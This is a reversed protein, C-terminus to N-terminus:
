RRGSLEEEPLLDQLDYKWNEIRPPLFTAQRIHSAVQVALNMGQSHMEENLVAGDFPTQSFNKSINVYAIELKGAKFAENIGAIKAIAFEAYLPLQLDYWTQKSKSYARSVSQREESTKYDIIRWRNESKHYDIRDIIGRIEM